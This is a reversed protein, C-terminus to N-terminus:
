QAPEPSPQQQYTPPISVDAICLEPEVFPRLQSGAGANGLRRLAGRLLGLHVSCVVTPYARATDRFPCADLELHRQSVGDVLRPAFGLRDFLEHVGRIAQDLSQAELAPVQQDAWWQGAREARRRGADADEALAAALVEALQRHGEVAASKTVVTYLQRPRGPRGARETARRVLGARELTELHFRATTVHLGVAAALERVDLSQTSSQLVELLRRRSSVALAAYRAGRAEEGTAM